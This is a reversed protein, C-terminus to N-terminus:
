KTNAKWADFIWFGNEFFRMTIRQAQPDLKFEVRVDENPFFFANDAYPLVVNSNGDASTIKIGQDQVEVVLNGTFDNQYTGTFKEKMQHALTISVPKFPTTAPRTEKLEKLDSFTYSRRGRSLLETISTSIASQPDHRSFFWIEGTTLNQINSYLTNDGQATELCIQKMTELSARQKQLIATAKPYRWCSSGDEKGCLDFNTSVLSQGKEALQSGSASIIAFRGHRDSVHMQASTFGNQFWYVNFFAIVEEVSSMNGLIHPLILDDGPPYANKSKPDFGKVQNIANFDFTLGAENMGGQMNGGEGLKPSFYSLTYYGYKMGQAKPFVNIFNAVGTPGDENNCTWVHGNSALASVITCGYLPSLNLLSLAAITVALFTTKCLASRTM